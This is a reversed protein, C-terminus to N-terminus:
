SSLRNLALAHMIMPLHDPLAFQEPRLAAINEIRVKTADDNAHLAITSLDGKIRFCFAQTSVAFLDGKKIPTDPIDGWAERIDFPRNYARTGVPTVQAAALVDRAIGTEEMAERWAATAEEECVVGGDSKRIPDIFGGPLAELGAGPNNRRTILVVHDSGDVIAADVAHRLYVSVLKGDPMAISGLPDVVHHPQGGGFSGAQARRVIEQQLASDVLMHDKIPLTMANARIFNSWSGFVVSLANPEKTKAPRQLGRSLKKPISIPAPPINTHRGLCSM